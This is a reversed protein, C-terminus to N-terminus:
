SVVTERTTRLPRLKGDALEPSLRFHYRGVMRIHDHGLPSLRALDADSVHHGEVRLQNVAEQLYVSNWLVCANLFRDIAKGAGPGTIDRPSRRPRDLKSTRRSDEVPLLVTLASRQEATPKAALTRWAKRNTHERISTVMRELVTAGSLLVKNEVLHFTALDFLAIPRENGSWCRDWLWRAM